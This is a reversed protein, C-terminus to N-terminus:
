DHTTGGTDSSAASSSACIHRIESCLVEEGLGAALARETVERLEKLVTQQRASRIHELGAVFSGKGKLSYIYGQRELELYARQVTNPNISLEAALSRVSPLPTDEGLVGMAMLNSLKEVIQEYIPRRDKFDLLIM